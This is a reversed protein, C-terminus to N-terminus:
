LKDRGHPLSFDVTRGAPIVSYANLTPHSTFYHMKIHRMNIAKSMGPTQYIDRCYALLTPYNDQITGKNTKFYVVYVEDFRVLTMFLRLDMWTFKGGAIYRQKSLIAEAKDLHEFLGKVAEDYAEQSKAFGCRYVGNNINHYIWENAAKAADALDAPFLDFDASKAWEQFQSNFMQLIETSENNVIVGEKKDWLVPTTYKGSADNSKEYVERISACGNITDPVLADDCEFSGYGASSKVPEDGPKRFVWGCHPDSPDEKTKQWTPHTVSYSICDELGKMFLAALAGDAWPCALAVYLHYRDKEPEFRSGKEIMNRYTSEKRKFEGKDSTEDLATRVAM